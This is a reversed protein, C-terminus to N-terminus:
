KPPRKAPKPTPPKPTRRRKTPGHSLSAALGITLFAAATFAASRHRHHISDQRRRSRNRDPPRPHPCPHRLGASDIVLDVIRTTATDPGGLETLENTLQNSLVSFLVTGLIAIGFASGLQRATSQTGSAQGSRDVPIDALVVGTLQATAFGFGSATSSCCCPVLWRTDPQLFIGLGTVGLIELMIGLRVIFLPSRTRVLAAGLGSALFSGLALAVLLAGTQFASYGLVNQLWLPLAFLIGFEGLSVIAAAINGNRFSTIRFLTLDLMAVRGDFNCRREVLVFTTLAAGGVVFAVAVPSLQWPWSWHGITLTEASSFWGYTRGEILGVGSEWRGLPAPLWL